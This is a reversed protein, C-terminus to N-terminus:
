ENDSKENKRSAISNSAKNLGYTVLVLVGIVIFICLMGQWLYNLAPLFNKTTFKVKIPKTAEDELETNEGVEPAEGADTDPATSAFACVSFASIAFVLTLLLVLIKTSKKM